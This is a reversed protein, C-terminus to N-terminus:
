KILFEELSHAYKKLDNKFIFPSHTVALIGQCGGSNKIDPLFREQWPVSLSLEPEDIIIFYNKRGLILYSFLSVIQKEGSSLDRYEIRDIKGKNKETSEFFDEKIIDSLYIDVKFNDNDYHFRKGEKIYDNCIRVFHNIDLEAKQQEEYLQFLKWVFYANMKDEDDVAGQDRVKEVFKKLEHKGNASIISDDLRKLLYQLAQDNFSQIKESDFSKYRKNLIDELYSGTIKGSLNNYFHGKLEACRREIREKVDEMGFEVLETYSLVENISSRRRRKLEYEKMGDELHPFINKLDKEIRRYTPLYIFQTDKLHLSLAEELKQVQEYTEILHEEDAYLSILERILGIPVDFRSAIEDIAEPDRKIAMLNYNNLIEEAVKEYRPPFRKDLRSKRLLVSRINKKEFSYEKSDIKLIIKDFEYENLKRWQRSLFYYLMNVLTTKGSGNEAVLILSNDEFQINYNSRGHLGYVKFSEIKM